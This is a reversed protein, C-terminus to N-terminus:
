GVYSVGIGILLSLVLTGVSILAIARVTYTGKLMALVKIDVLPGAVMFALLAGYRFLGAYALAFFADVNSCISIIFGIAIMVTTGIFYNEGLGSLLEQSLGFQIVAALFGGVCLLKFMTWFEAAFSLAYSESHGKKHDPHCTEAFQKTLAKKGLRGVLEGLLLALVFGGALRAPLMWPVNRFAEYTTLITIPNLIPAALLFTTAEAVTFGKRMLGRTLPVNGCECVPLAFGFCAVLVRRVVVNKPLRHIIKDFFHYKQLAVSLLAGLVLFPTAGIIVSLAVTLIDQINQM